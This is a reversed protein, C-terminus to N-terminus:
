LDRPADIDVVLEVEVLPKLPTPSNGSYIQLAVVRSQWRPNNVSNPRGEIQWYYDPHEAFAQGSGVVMETDEAFWNALLQDALKVATMTQDALRVQRIHRSHATLM